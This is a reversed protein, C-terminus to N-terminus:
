DGILRALVRARLAALDPDSGMWDDVSWAFTVAGHHLTALYGALGRTHNVSGTKAFTRREALSGIFSQELTGRVGAVPLDDLVINRYPGTWDAQLIAVLARPPVRDYSSLGSGDAITLTAPDVGITALWAREADAGHETTGPMGGRQLGVARLLMEAVFNDSPWWMDALLDSLPEGDHTWVLRADAPVPAPADLGNTTIGLTASSNGTWGRPRAPDPLESGVIGYLYALPERLAVDITEAAGGLPLTGVVETCLDAPNRVTDLAPPTDPAATIGVPKVMTKVVFEDV